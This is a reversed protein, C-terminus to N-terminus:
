ELSIYPGLLSDLKEVNARRRAETVHLYVRRTMADSSHGLQKQIDELSAGAEASLSTFTHRLSHPTISRPLGAQDILHALDTEFTTPNLPYGPYRKYSVLVFNREKDRYYNEGCRLRFAKVDRIQADLIAAVTRSIDVTRISSRNKPTELRYARIGQRHYLTAIVRITGRKTDVRPEELACLEGIRLGTNALIIIARMTQRAGFAKAPDTQSDAYEKAVRILEALQEKELYEPLPEDAGSELAEFTPRMSPLVAGETPNARVIGMKVAHRYLIRMASHAGRIASEGLGHVDRLDLLYQQYMAPTIDRLKRGAFAIRAYRLNSRMVDVTNQKLSKSRAHLEVGREAWEAFTINEEDVFTGELLQAEIKIGERYAEQPTPFARTEKQKRRVTGDPQTVPVSYRYTYGGGRRRVKPPLKERPM